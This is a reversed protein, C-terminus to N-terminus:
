YIIWVKCTIKDNANVAGTLKDASYGTGNNVLKWTPHTGYNGNYFGGTDSDYGGSPNEVLLNKYLPLNGNFEKIKKITFDDANTSHLSFGGFSRSNKQPVQIAVGKIPVAKGLVDSTNVYLQQITYLDISYPGSISVNGGGKAPYFSM